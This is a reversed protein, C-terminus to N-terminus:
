RLRTMRDRSRCTSIDTPSFHRELGISKICRIPALTASISEATATLRWILRIFTGMSRFCGKGTAQRFVRTWLLPVSQLHMAMPICRTLAGNYIAMGRPHSLPLEALVKGGDGAHVTVKDAFEKDSEVFERKRIEVFKGRQAIYVFSKGAKPDTWASMATVWGDPRYVNNRNAGIGTGFPKEDARYVFKPGGDTSYAWVTKGDTAVADGGAAGGSNFARM